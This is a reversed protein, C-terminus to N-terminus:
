QALASFVLLARRREGESVLLHDIAEVVPLSRLERRAQQGSRLLAPLRQVLSEHQQLEPHALREM